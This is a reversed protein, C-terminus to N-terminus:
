VNVIMTFVQISMSKIVLQPYEIEKIDWRSCLLVMVWKKNRKWRQKKELHMSYLCDSDCMVMYVSVEDLIVSSPWTFLFEFVFHPSNQLVLIQRTNKPNKQLWTMWFFKFSIIILRSFGGESIKIKEFHFISIFSIYNSNQYKETALFFLIQIM